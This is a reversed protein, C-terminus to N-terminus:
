AHRRRKRLAEDHDRVSPDAGGNPNGMQEVAREKEEDLFRGIWWKERKVRSSEDTYRTVIAHVAAPDIKMAAAWRIATDRRLWQATDRHQAPAAELDALVGRELLLHEADRFGRERALANAAGRSLGQKGNLIRGANQQKIGLADGLQKQTWMREERLAKMEARLVDMEADSFAKHGSPMHCAHDEASLRTRVKKPLSGSARRHAFTYMDTM